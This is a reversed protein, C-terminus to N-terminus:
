WDRPGPGRLDRVEVNAGSEGRLRVDMGGAGDGDVARVDRAATPSEPRGALDGRPRADRWAALDLGFVNRVLDSRGTEGDRRASIVSPRRRRGPHADVIVGKRDAM